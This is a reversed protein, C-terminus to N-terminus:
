SFLLDSLLHYCHLVPQPDSKKTAAPLAVARAGAFQACMRFTLSARSESAAPAASEDDPTLDALADAAREGLARAYLSVGLFAVIEPRAALADAELGVRWADNENAIVTDGMDDMAIQNRSARRAILLAVGHRSLEAPDPEARWPPVIRAEALLTWFPDAKAPM